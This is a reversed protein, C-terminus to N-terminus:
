RVREKKRKRRRPQPAAARGAASRALEIAREILGTQADLSSTVAALGLVIALFGTALGWLRFPTLWASVSELTALQALLPSGAAAADIVPIPNGYLRAAVTALSAAVGLASILIAESLALFILALTAALPREPLPPRKKAPLTAIAERGSQGLSDDLARLGLVVGGLILGLGLYTYYPLWQNTSEFAARQATLSTEHGPAAYYAAAAQTNRVSLILASILIVVGALIWWPFTRALQSIAREIRGEKSLGHRALHM